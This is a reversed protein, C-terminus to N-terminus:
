STISKTIDDRTEELDTFPLIYIYFCHGNLKSDVIKKSINEFQKEIEKKIQDNINKRFEDNPLNKDKELINVEYGIFIGFADDIQFSNSEKPYILDEIITKEEDTFSENELHNSILTKEFDIGSKEDGNNNVENKFDYISKIAERIAGALTKITKSEGFIIQYNGNKLKLFHIGDSGNVYFKNSTKLELKSLIKPAKLHNKLFSFLLLEGLEGTNMEKLFKERARKSLIMPKNQLKERTKGSLSFDALPELLREKLLKYDFSNSNIHHVFLSLKTKSNNADIEQSDILNTFTELFSNDINMNTKNFYPFKRVCYLVRGLYRRLM